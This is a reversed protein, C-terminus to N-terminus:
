TVCAVSADEGHSCDHSGWGRHGCSSLSAEGGGCNVDDLWIPGNGQGFVAGHYQHFASSFGLQRCVVHADSIDWGDDCVTGWQGSYYVEVRGYFYGGNALRLNSSGYRCRVGADRSHTCDHNGWGRQRCNYIHSESGSCAVDDMWIPGTGQGYRAGTYASSALRSFGLQRCAVNADNIDWADDCVTGWQGNYLIEIRGYNFSGGRLRISGPKLVKYIAKFGYYQLSGDSTFRVFLQNTSSVIPVPRNSGSFRGILPASSSVGDYVYVYDANRETKFRGFFSLELEANASITWSCDMGSSYITGVSSQIIGSEHNADQALLVSSCTTQARLTPAECVNKGNGVYGPPCACSYSGPINVCSALLHCSYSALQCEDVDLCNRGDYSYGSNCRCSFSGGNNICTANEPCDYSFEQCEDYDKKCSYKHCTSCNVDNWKYKHDKLLGLSHVCDENHFNNPQNTAWYHFDFRTGDSWVFTGESNIDSLGLWGNEGNHLNQLFVNEEQSHVSPLNAGLTSCRSQGNSWSDCSSIKQYCYGKFYMWDDPCIDALVAYSVTLPDFRQVFLEKVCIRFSAISIFEIWNVIGNCDPSANGGGSSHKATLIVTPYNNYTRTFSVDQCFAFNNSKSPLIGNPFSVNSHESFLPRHLTEFALWNVSIDDHVGAFNQLERICIKFSRASVDELWVSAADHKLSSRYHEATVFVTPQSSFKGNPLTVTQCSTGTWWRSFKKEGAIGGPPAGQYAIWDVTAFSDSPYDNRGARTVCATFQTSNVSEVWPTTAEHVYAPDSYNVHNVTLQIFIKQHPYFIFPEFQITECQDEAWSPHNKFQHRGKQLPFGACSGPHYHTYNAQTECIEKQLLCLNRFTRGNSACMEEQYSPCNSECVCHCRQPSLAVPKSHYKCSANDCPDYDGTVVYHVELNDRQGDIGAYDKICVRFHTRNMEEVWSILPGKVAWLPNSNNKTGKVATTLVNPPEYFPRTFNIIKCLAYNDQALPIEYNPFLIKSSEKVKWLTPYHKYAMWTVLLNSHPGDFTRSERLCVVFHTRFISEIWVNMADKRRDLNGHQITAQIEPKTSFVQSFTVRTCKTGTTFLAFRAQGHQVGSQYGQFALWDITSNAGSGQGGAVICAKFRTTSVDEVWALVSDHVEASDNGHNVSTFVRVPLYGNPFPRSFYAYKCQYNDNGAMQMVIKGNETGQISQILLFYVSLWLLFIGRIRDM